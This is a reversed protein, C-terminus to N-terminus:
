GDLSSACDLAAPSLVSDGSSALIDILLVEATSIRMAGLIMSASELVCAPQDCESFLKDRVQGITNM